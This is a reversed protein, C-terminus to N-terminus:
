ENLDLGQRLSGKLYSQRLLLLAQIVSSKGSSNTGTLVTLNRLLLETELHAKFNGLRIKGIM